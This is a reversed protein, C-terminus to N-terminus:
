RLPLSSEYKTFAVLTPEIEVFKAERELLVALAAPVEVKRGILPEVITEFKAPHATAVLVWNSGGLKERAVVATATHPCWIEGGNTDAFSTRIAGTIEADSISIATVDRRLEDVKPYLWTLREMNSPDGVDMANALTATTPQPRYDGTSFYDPVARNANTALVVTGIPFGIRKAWLAAFANGLNGTPVIFGATEGTQQWYESSSKAYYTVQALLRAINISNASVFRRRKTLEADRLAEKVVRQCDDFTGNVAVARVNGRWCAIQKEQRASIKGKPYLVFVEIDPKGHFAAAVAGGTDGSTAVLVTRAKPSPDRALCEALFRAGIDKFAATPGHFLELVGVGDKRLRLPIPFDFAAKCIAHLERALTDGAFYPELLEAAFRDYAGMTDLQAIEGVPFREPVYLGGDPALGSNMASAFSVASSRGRTSLYKM